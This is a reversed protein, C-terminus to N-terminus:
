RTLRMAKRVFGEIVEATEPQMDVFQGGLYLLGKKEDVRRLIFPTTFAQGPGLHCHLLLREGLQLDRLPSKLDVKTSLRCGSPTLDTLMIEHEGYQGHLMGPVSVQVREDCRLVMREVTEPYSLFLIPAPKATRALVSTRFGQVAGAGSHQAVALPNEQLATHVAQPLRLEVVLYSYPRVGVVLADYKKDVCLLRLSLKAGPDLTLKSGPLREVRKGAAPPPAAKGNPKATDTNQESM